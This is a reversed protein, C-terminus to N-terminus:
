EKSIKFYSVASILAEAQAALEDASSSLQESTSANQQTISNLQQVSENVQGAGENQELSASSIEDVLQATKHIDPLIQQLELGANQTLKLSNDSSAIIENAAMKSREALKRVEAAVVAFGRGHEGARAAEVAANLALINTQMAIDNIVSIKESIETLSELSIKAADVVGQIGHASANSIAKTEQANGSNQAINSSMEEMTSSVEEVSAAQENAAQAMQEASTRLQQSASAIQTSNNSITEVVQKLGSLMSAISRSLVGLEDKREVLSEELEVSLDGKSVVALVDVAKYLPRSISRTIIIAGAAVILIVILIIIISNYLIQNSVDISNEYSLDAATQTIGTFTDMAGRMEEFHQTFSGFYVDQADIFDDSLIYSEIESELKTVEDYSSYFLKVLAENEKFKASKSTELFKDFRQKVQDLNEKADSLYKEELSKEHDENLSDFVLLQGIALSSQYADRDAELLFQMSVLDESYIATLYRKITQTKTLTYGFGLSILVIILILQLTLRKGIELNDIFKM